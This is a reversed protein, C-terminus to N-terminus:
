AGVTRTYVLDDFLALPGPRTRTPAAGDSTSRPVTLDRQHRRPVDGHGCRSRRRQRRYVGVTATLKRAPTEGPAALMSGIQGPPKVAIGRAIRDPLASSARRGLSPAAHGM